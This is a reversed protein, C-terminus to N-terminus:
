ACCRWQPCDDRSVSLDHIGLAAITQDASKTTLVPERHLRQKNSIMNTIGQYKRNWQPRLVSAFRQLGVSMAHPLTGAVGMQLATHKRIGRSVGM